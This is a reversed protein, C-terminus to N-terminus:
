NEKLKRPTFFAIWRSDPSWFPYFAGDSGPLLRSESEGLSRVWLQAKGETRGVFALMTGDPSLAFGGEGNRAFRFSTGPPPLLSANLAAVPAASRYRIVTWGIAGAIIVGFAVVAM